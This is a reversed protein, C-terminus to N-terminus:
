KHNLLLQARILANALTMRRYSYIDKELWPSVSTKNLQTASPDRIGMGVDEDVVLM